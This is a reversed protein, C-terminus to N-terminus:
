ENQANHFYLCNNNNNNSSHPNPPAKKSFPLCLTVYKNNWQYLGIIVQAYLQTGSMIFVESSFELRSEFM